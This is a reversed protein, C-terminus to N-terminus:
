AFGPFEGLEFMNHPAETKVFYGVQTGLGQRDHLCGPLM